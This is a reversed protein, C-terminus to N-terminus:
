RRRSFQGLGLDFQMCGGVRVDFLEHVQGTARVGNSDFQMWGSVRVDYPSRAAGEWSAPGTGDMGSVLTRDPALSTEGPGGALVMADEGLYRAILQRIATESAPPAAPVVAAPTPAGPIGPSSDPPVITRGQGLAVGALSLLSALAVAGRKHCTNWRVQSM